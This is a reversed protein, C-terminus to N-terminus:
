RADTDQEKGALSVGPRIDWKCAHVVPFLDVQKDASTQRRRLAISPVAQVSLTM